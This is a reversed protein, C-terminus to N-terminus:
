LPLIRQAQLSRLQRVFMDETDVCRGFGHQRIKITSLLTSPAGGGFGFVADAFQWSAGVLDATRTPRLGHRAVIADWVAAHEPMVETLCRSQPPAARMGFVAAISPWLAGWELVDGNTVNFTEGRCAAERGCWLIADALLDADTAETVFGSGGPFALPEGLERMISAFVGIAMVMNMPSGLATGCVIQPRLVSFSWGGRAARERVLDEQTWYFNDHRHRPAREKGPLRMPAVHAGYAKTGQLLTLHETPEVFDLVNRLMGTNILIQEPDRWGAILEPKEYLAAYVVHSVDALEPAGFAAECAARDVLDVSLFRANTEFDPQRRSVAIVDASRERDLAAVVARGVLGLAGLVLYKRQQM